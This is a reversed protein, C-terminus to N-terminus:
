HECQADTSVMPASTQLPLSTGLDSWRCQCMDLARYDKGQNRRAAWTGELRKHAWELHDAM